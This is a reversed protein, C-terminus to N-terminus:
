SKACCVKGQREFLLSPSIIAVLTDSLAEGPLRASRVMELVGSRLYVHKVQESAGKDGMEKLVAGTGKQLLELTLEVGCREAAELIKKHWAIPIHGVRSWYQVTSQRLGLQRALASQSGFRSIVWQAKSM